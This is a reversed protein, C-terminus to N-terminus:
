AGAPATYYNKRTADDLCIVQYIKVGDRIFAQVVEEASNARHEIAANTGRKGAFKTIKSPYYIVQQVFITNDIDADTIVGPAAVAPLPDCQRFYMVRTEGDEFYIQDGSIGENTFLEVCSRPSAAHNYYVGHGGSVFEKRGAFKGSHMRAIMVIFDNM